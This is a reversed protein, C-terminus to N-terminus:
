DNNVFDHKTGRELILVYLQFREEAGTEIAPHCSSFAPTVNGAPAVIGALPYKSIAFLGSATESRLITGSTIFGPRIRLLM